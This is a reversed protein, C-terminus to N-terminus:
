IEIDIKREKKRIMKEEKEREKKDDKGRERKRLWYNTIMQLYFRLLLKKSIQVIYFNVNCVDSMSSYFYFKSLALDWAPNSTLAAMFFESFAENAAKCISHVATLCRSIEELVESVPDLNSTNELIHQSSNNYYAVLILSYLFRTNLIFRYDISIM